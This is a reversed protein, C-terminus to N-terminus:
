VTAGAASLAAELDAILDAAAEVGVALRVTGPQIGAASRQEADLAAHSTAGPLSVLSEVGGLSTAQQFLRLASAFAIAGAEPNAGALVLSVIGGCGGPLLQAARERHPHGALEPWHVAAVAPHKALRAAVQRANAVIREMRLHLTRLGRMLLWAAQPDACPGQLRAREWVGDVTEQPGAVVGAIVDGHGNLYKSASHLVLDAGLELPRQLAPSAFTADVYLRVGRERLAAALAPLDAVANLPNSLSEVFVVRTRETLAALVDAVEASPAIRVERVGDCELRRLLQLTTGYAAASAVIGEGPATAAELATAIAAMGSALLLASDAGELAALRREVEWVTPNSYRGYALAQRSHAPAGAIGFQRRFMASREIGPVLAAATPFGDVPGPGHVCLTEFYHKATM